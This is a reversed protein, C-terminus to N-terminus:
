GSVWRAGGKASGAKCRRRIGGCSAQRRRVVETREVGSRGMDAARVESGEGLGIALWQERRSASCGRRWRAGGYGCAATRLVGGRVRLGGRSAALHTRM